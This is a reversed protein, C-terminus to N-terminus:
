YIVMIKRVEKFGGARFKIFYIGSTLEGRDLSIIYEGPLLEKNVLTKVLVGAINYLKLSIYGRKAVSYQISAGGIVVSPYCTLSFSSIQSDTNEGLRVDIRFKRLKGTYAYSKKERMNIINGTEIDTLIFVLEDPVKNIEPWTLTIEEDNYSVEPNEWSKGSFHGFTVNPFILIFCLIYKLFLSKMTM